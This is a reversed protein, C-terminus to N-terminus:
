KHLFASLVGCSIVEYGNNAITQRILDLYM